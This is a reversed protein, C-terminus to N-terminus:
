TMRAPNFLGRSGTLPEWPFLPGCTQYPPTEIYKIWASAENKHGGDGGSGGGLSLWCDTPVM